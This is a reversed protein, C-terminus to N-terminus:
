VRNWFIMEEESIWEYFWEYRRDGLLGSLEKEREEAGVPIQRRRQVLVKKRRRNKYKERASLWGDSLCEDSHTVGISSSKSQAEEEEEDEPSHFIFDNRSRRRKVEEHRKEESKQRSEETKRAEQRQEIREQQRRQTEIQHVIMLQDMDHQQQLEDDHTQQAESSTQEAPAAPNQQDVSQSTESASHSSPLSTEIKSEEVPTATEASPQATQEVLTVQAPLGTPSNSIPSSILDAATIPTNAKTSNGTSPVSSNAVLKVSPKSMSDVISMVQRAPSPLERPSTKPAETKRTTNTTQRTAAEKQVKLNVAPKEVVEPKPASASHPDVRTIPAPGDHTHLSTVPNVITSASISLSAVRARIKQMLSPPKVPMPPRVKIPAPTGQPLAVPRFPAMTRLAQIHKMIPEPLPLKTPASAAPVNVEYLPNVRTDPTEPVPRSKPLTLSSRLQASGAMALVGISFSLWPHDPVLEESVHQASFGAGTDITLGIIGDSISNGTRGLLSVQRQRFLANAVKSREAGFARALFGPKEVANVLNGLGIRRSSGRALIGALSPSAGVNKVTFSGSIKVPAFVAMISLSTITTFGEGNDLVLNAISGAGGDEAYFPGSLIAARDSFYGEGEESKLYYGPQYALRDIDTDNSTDNDNRTLLIIANRITVVERSDNAKGVLRALRGDSLYARNNATLEQLSVGRLLVAELIKLARCRESMQDSLGIQIEVLAEFYKAPALGATLTVVGTNFYGISKLRENVVALAAADEARVQQLALKVGMLQISILLEKAQQNEPNHTLAILAWHNAASIKGHPKRLESVAAGSAAQSRLQPTLASDDAIGTFNEWAKQALGADLLAKAALLRAEGAEAGGDKQALKLLEAAREGDARIQANTKSLRAPSIQWHADRGADTNGIFMQLTTIDGQAETLRALLGREQYQLYYGQDPGKYDAPVEEKGLPVFPSGRPPTWGIVVETGNIYRTIIKISQREVEYPITDPGIDHTEKWTWSYSGDLDRGLWSADRTGNDTEAVYTAINSNSAVEERTLPQTDPKTTTQRQMYLQSLVLACPVKAESAKVSALTAELVEIALFNIQRERYWRGLNGGVQLLIQDRESILNFLESELSQKREGVAEPLEIEIEAVRENLANFARLAEERSQAKLAEVQERITPYKALLNACAQEIEEQQTNYANLFRELGPIREALVSQRSIASTHLLLRALRQQDTVPDGNIQHRILALDHEACLVFADSIEGRRLAEQGTWLDMQDKLEHPYDRRLLQAAYQAVSMGLEQAFQTEIWSRDASDAGVFLKEFAVVPDLGKNLNRHLAYVPFGRDWFEDPLALTQFKEYFIRYNAGLSQKLYNTLSKCRAAPLRQMFDCIAQKNTPSPDALAQRVLGLFHSALRDDYPLTLLSIEKEIEPHRSLLEANEARFKSFAGWDRSNNQQDPTWLVIGQVQLSQLSQKLSNTRTALSCISTKWADETQRKLEPHSTYLLEFTAFTRQLETQLPCVSSSYRLDYLGCLLAWSEAYMKWRDLLLQDSVVGSDIIGVIQALEAESLSKQTCLQEFYNLEPASSQRAIEKLIALRMAEDKGSFHLAVLLIVDQGEAVSRLLASASAQANNGSLRGHVENRAYGQPPIRLAQVLSEEFDGLEAAEYALRMADLQEKSCRALLELGSHSDRTVSMVLKLSNALAPSGGSDRLYRMFKFIEPSCSSVFAEFEGAGYISDYTQIYKEFDEKSMQAFDTPQTAVVVRAYASLPKTQDLRGDEHYIGWPTKPEIVEAVFPRQDLIALCENLHTPKDKLCEFLLERLSKNYLRQCERELYPLLEASQISLLRYAFGTDDPSQRYRNLAELFYASRLGPESSKRLQYEIDPYRQLLKQHRTMCAEFLALETKYDPKNWLTYAHNLRDVAAQLETLEPRYKIKAENLDKEFDQLLVYNSGFAFFVGYQRNKALEYDREYQLLEAQLHEQKSASSREKKAAAIQILLLERGAGWDEEFGEYRVYLKISDLEVGNSLRIADEIDENDYSSSQAKFFEEVSQGTLTLFIKKFEARDSYLKGHFVTHAAMVMDQQQSWVILRLVDLMQPSLAQRISVGGAKARQLEKTVGAITAASLQSSLHFLVIDIENDGTVFPVAQAQPATTLSTIFYQDLDRTSRVLRPPSSPRSTAVTQDALASDQRVSDKNISEQPAACEELNTSGLASLSPESSDQERNESM